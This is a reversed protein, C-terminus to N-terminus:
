NALGRRFIYENDPARLSASWFISVWCRDDAGYTALNQEGEMEPAAGKHSREQSVADIRVGNGISVCQM